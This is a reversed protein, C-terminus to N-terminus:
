ELSYFPIDYSIKSRLSTNVQSLFEFNGYYTSRCLCRDNDNLDMGHQTGCGACGATSLTM